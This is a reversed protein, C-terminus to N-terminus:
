EHSAGEQKLAKAKLTQKHEEAQQCITKKGSEFFEFECKECFASDPEIRQGDSETYGFYYYYKEEEGCVPCISQYM